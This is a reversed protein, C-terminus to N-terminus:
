AAKADLGFARHLERVALELYKDEIVVSTKIESTSIMQINIGEKALTEFMRSAIGAHSKMGIGVISVKAIRPDGIIEGGGIDPRVKDNLVDLAAQYEGRAVTFSFDTKGDVSQNQVIMDVDINADAIPGLIRFAVGPRDPVNTITIKAEDRQFAIGSVVAQEMAEKSFAEEFTILTGSQMEEDLAIDPPTLSSLVRTKVRYKGAFEVSRIQLVKSGLSAMELMEEFTIRPLRRAEPVIRPDTTYVGDVDTYILCEEAGLAAAIAVASTDSGGRGLTTVNGLDDIGQFGTVVVVRGAGLEARVRADDISAIRAKTYASDTKVPVQWGTFSIADVGIAKLAIALLGVSVQEGTSAIMDLERGDPQPVIDRALGLLRNTEGSMASPVIVMQHGARRWKAVRAAVNRIREVSGMSTGGYKHVILAM